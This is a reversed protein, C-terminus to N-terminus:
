HRDTYSARIKKETLKQTFLVGGPLLIILIILLIGRSGPIIFCLNDLIMGLGMVPFLVIMLFGYMTVYRVPNVSWVSVTALVLAFIIYTFLADKSRCFLLPPLLSYILTRAIRLLSDTLISKKLLQMGSVSTKLYEMGLNNKKYIPGYGFYETSGEILMLIAQVGWVLEINSKRSTLHYLGGIVTFLIPLIFYSIFYFRRGIIAKQTKLM